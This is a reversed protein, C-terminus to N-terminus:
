RRHQKGVPLNKFFGFGGTGEQVQGTPYCLAIQEWEFGDRTGDVTILKNLKVASQKATKIATEKDPFKLESKDPLKVKFEM